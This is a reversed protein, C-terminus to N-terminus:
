NPLLYNVKLSSLRIIAKQFGLKADFVEPTEDALPPFDTGSCRLLEGSEKTDGTANQTFRLLRSFFSAHEEGDGM